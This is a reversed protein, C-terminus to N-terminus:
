HRGFSLEVSLCRLFHRVLLFKFFKYLRPVLCRQWCQIPTLIFAPITLGSGPGELPMNILVAEIESFLECIIKFNYTQLGKKREMIFHFWQDTQFHLFSQLCGLLYLTFPQDIVANMKAFPAYKTIAQSQNIKHNHFTLICSWIEMQFFIQVTAVFLLCEM